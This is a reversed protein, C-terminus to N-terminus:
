KENKVGGKEAQSWLTMARLLQNFNCSNRQMHQKIARQLSKDIVGALYAEFQETKGELQVNNSLFDELLTLSEEWKASGDKCRYKGARGSPQRTWQHSRNASKRAAKGYDCPQPSDSDPPKVSYSGKEKKPDVFRGDEGHNGNYAHCQPKRKAEKMGVYGKTLGGKALDDAGPIWSGRDPKLMYKKEKNRKKRSPYKSDKSAEWEELDDLEEDDDEIDEDDNSNSDLRQLKDEIDAEILLKRWNDMIKQM